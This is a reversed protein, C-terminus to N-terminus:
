RIILRVVRGDTLEKKRFRGNEERWHRQLGKPARGKSALDGSATDIVLVWGGTVAFVPKGKGGERKKGGGGERKKKGLSQHTKKRRIPKTKQTTPLNLYTKKQLPLREWRV